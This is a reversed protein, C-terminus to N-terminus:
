NGKISSLCDRNRKQKEHLESAEVGPVYVKDVNWFGAGIIEVKATEKAGREAIWCTMRETGRSLNCQYFKM